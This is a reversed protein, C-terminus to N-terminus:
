SGFAAVSKHGGELDGHLLVVAITGLQQALGWHGIRKLLDVYRCATTTRSPLPKNNQFDQSELLLKGPNVNICKLEELNHLDLVRPENTTTDQSVGGFKMYCYWVIIARFLVRPVHIAPEIGLPLTELLHLILIAHVACRTGAPSNAWETAYKKHPQSETSGERGIARELRDIDAHLSLFGSHWLAQLCFTDRDRQLHSSSKLPRLYRDHFSILAREFKVQSDATNGQEQFNSDSIAWILSELEVYSRFGMLCPSPSSPIGSSQEIQCRVASAWAEATPAMWLNDESVVDLPSRRVLPDTLLLESLEADLIFVAAWLRIQEEAQSWARWTQEPARYVDAINIQDIARRSSFLNQRKAWTIVTGHFTQVTLLDKPRGTLMGFIQGILAAQVMSLAEAKGKIMYTEWSSLIAKHLTEFIKIGRQTAHNSGLFLSGMSCISLLLLSRKVSPRFTQQHIIPLINTFRAFFLRICMNLFDTSPLPETTIRQQLRQVLNERDTDDIHARDPNGGPTDYGTGSGELYTYWHRRVIDEPQESVPEVVGASLPTLLPAELFAPPPEVNSQMTSTIIAANFAGLDFNDDALWASPQAAWGVSWDSLCGPQMEAWDPQGTAPDVPLSPDHPVPSTYNATASSGASPSGLGYDTPHNPHAFSAGTTSLKSGAPVPAQVRETGVSEVATSPKQPGAQRTIGHSRAHRLLSDYRTFSKTCVTCSFPRERTHRRIHRALHDEKTFSQSCWPCIREPRSNPHAPM